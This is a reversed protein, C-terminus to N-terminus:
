PIRTASSVLARWKQLLSVRLRGAVHRSIIAIGPMQRPNAAIIGIRQRRSAAWLRKYDDDGRGFDLSVVSDQTLIQEITWATLVTGPSLADFDAAHALKLIQACGGIVVWYQVAVPTETHWLMALRLVGLEACLRMMAANFAPYPEAQKWSQGYVTEFAAIAAALEAGGKVLAFRFAPDRKIKGGRRRITERLAGARSALYDPWGAAPGHWNGFHAFRLPLLGGARLGRCFAALPPWAADLTDLRLTGFQRLHVAVACGVAYIAADPLGALLLPHHLCSYPSTLSEAGGAHCWLPLVAVARGDQRILLFEAQAEAPHAASLLLEYWARSSYFGAVTEDPAAFLAQADSPLAAISPFAETTFRM